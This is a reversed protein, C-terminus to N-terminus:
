ACLPAVKGAIENRLAYLNGTDSISDGLVVMRRVPYREDDAAQVGSLFMGAVVIFLCHRANQNICTFSM